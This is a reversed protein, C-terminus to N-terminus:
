GGQALLAGLVALVSPFGIAIGWMLLRFRWDMDARLDDIRQNVQALGRNLESITAPRSEDQTAM